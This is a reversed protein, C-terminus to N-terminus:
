TFRKSEDIFRQVAYFVIHNAELPLSQDGYLLLKLNPYAVQNITELMIVRHTAYLPCVFLHEEELNCACTPSPVLNLRHLHKRLASCGMRLRTHHIAPRRKGYYYLPDPRTPDKSIRKKFATTSPADKVQDDLDNWERSTVPFFSNKHVLLRPRPIDLNERNRLGYHTRDQVRQPLLDGLYAPAKNNNVRYFLTLRHERRRDRLRKWKLEHDLSATTCRATAGSVIREANNHIVDLEDLQHDTESATDWLIDGYEMIPRVFANYMTELSRRDLRFKLAKMVSLRSTAKKTMTEVQLDWKLDDKLIIGLHKHSKVTTVTVDDLFLRPHNTEERKTSIVMEKTKPPSFEILWEKSWENLSELDENMDRAADDPNDVEIFLCTDDAFLRIQCHRIVHVIDNIYILFLLPGLVSGQPVGAKVLGWSSYQGNIVVRQCRDSLYDKLWNLLKGSIGARELKFLLGKHWVRDFAKSIDLFTVRVEKGDSVAQCFANYMEVMQTVTSSGPIFGSQWMNILFNSQFYSFLYKFVVREFVKALASLLSVPRYNITFYDEAKKYIPCVNARKWITPFVELFLSMNFLRTLSPLISPRAEKLLRPSVEDPGFAKDPKLNLLVKNVDDQTVVLEELQDHAVNPAPPLVKGDDNVVSMDLYSKNFAEAKDRDDTIVNGDVMLAPIQSCQSMGLLEKALRWWKKPCTGAETALTQHKKDEYEFQAKRIAIFYDNRAKKYAELTAPTDSRSHERFKHNKERKLRRLNGQYWPHDNPRVVVRKNPITTTAAEMFIENWKTVATNVDNTQFCSEWDATSLVTRFSNFDAKAYDWMRRTYARQKPLKFQLLASITNHDNLHLPDNSETNLVTSRHNTIILDLITKKGSVPDTRTPKDMHQYLNHRVLFEELNRGETENSSRDANFDGTLIIDKIGQNKALRLANELGEWFHATYDGRPQRYCVAILVKSKGVKIELWMIEALISELDRRRVSIMSNKVWAMIGGSPQPQRDRRFPGRFGPIKYNANQHKPKLFTETATIIDYTSGLETKVLTM